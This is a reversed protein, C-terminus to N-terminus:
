QETNQQAEQFQLIFEPPLRRLRGTKADIFAGKHIVHTALEGNVYIEGEFDYSAKGVWSIWMYGKPKDFLKIPKKYEINTSTIVPMYGNELLPQMASYRAMVELRMDEMWYLYRINSVHGGSDIHYTRVKIDMEIMLSRKPAITSMETM